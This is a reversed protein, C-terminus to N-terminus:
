TATGRFVVASASLPLTKDTQLFLPSTILHDAPCPRFTTAKKEQTFMNLGFFFFFIGHFCLYLGLM